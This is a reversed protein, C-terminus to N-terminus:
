LSESEGIVNEIEIELGFFFIVPEQRAQPRDLQWYMGYMFFHIENFALVCVSREEVAELM